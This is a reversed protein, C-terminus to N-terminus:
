GRDEVLGAMRNFEEVKVLALAKTLMDAMMMSKPCYELAIEGSEIVSRTFHFQIYIHKSRKTACSNAIKISGQNGAYIKIAKVGMGCEIGIDRM